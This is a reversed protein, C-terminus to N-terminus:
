NIFNYDKYDKNIAEIINNIDTEWGNYTGHNEKLIENATLGIILNKDYDLNYKKLFDESFGSKSTMIKINNNIKVIYVSGKITRAEKAKNILIEKNLM